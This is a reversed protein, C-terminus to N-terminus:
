HTLNSVCIMKGKFPLSEFIPVVVPSGGGAVDFFVLPNLKAIAAKLEEKFTVSNELLM